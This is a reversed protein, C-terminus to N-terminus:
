QLAVRFLGVPRVAVDVAMASQRGYIAMVVDERVGRNFLEAILAGHWDQLRDKGLVARVEAVRCPQWGDVIDAAIQEKLPVCRGAHHLVGGRISQPDFSVVDELRFRGLLLLLGYARAPQPQAMVQALLDAFSPVFRRLLPYPYPQATFPNSRERHYERYYQTLANSCSLRTALSARVMEDQLFFLAVDVPAAETETKGTKELFTRWWTV